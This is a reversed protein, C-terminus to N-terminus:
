IDITEDVVDQNSNDTVDEQAPNEPLEEPNTDIPNYTQDGEVPQLDDVALGNSPTVEPEVDLSSITVETPVMRYASRTIKKSSKVKGNEYVTKYTDVVYGTKGKSTVTKTGQPLTPDPTVNELPETVSITKNTIEIKREPEYSGGLISITLKRGNVVSNVKIPYETDNKFKFDISGYSVTADQGNPVYGVTMSHNHREVIELDAFLVASYLTSSVQCVGGGVGEVSKGNEYVTAVKYGNALSPNGITENYSFTEGPMLIKGNVSNSARSVNAARNASSSSFDTTYKGLTTTFLKEELQQKTKKPLIVKANITTREGANVKEVAVKLDNRLIEVGVVDEVVVVEGNENREYFADQAPKCLENYLEDADLTQPKAYDLFVDINDTEGKGVANLFQNRAVSTDQNQGPTGPIITMSDETYEFQPGSSLGNITAGFDFLAKDLLQQNYEPVFGIEENAFMLKVAYYANKFINKSKGIRMAADATAEANVGLEVDQAKITATRGSSTVNYESDELVLNEVAEEVEAETMGGVNIGNIYVNDCVKNKPLSFSLAVTAFLFVSVTACLSLILKKHPLKSNSNGGNKRATSAKKRVRPKYSYEDVENEIKNKEKLDTSM